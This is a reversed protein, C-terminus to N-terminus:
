DGFSTGVRRAAIVWTHNLPVSNIKGAVEELPVAIADDGQAGVMIGFKGQEVLDACLSGLQAALVRDRAVPAGGRLLYGLITVRTDLHTLHELRNALLLTSGTTRDEIQKLRAAVEAREDGSHLNENVRRTHEFFSVSESTRASEAMAIISFRKGDSNRKLVEDAVKQVDYPIEPILIIDAGGALGAALTLWGSDLGMIEVIIVRHHSHATSHLRDVAETAIETATSYGISRDTGVVHNDIAKPLTILNLGRHALDLAISQTEGGGICILADLQHRQCTAISADLQGARDENSRAFPAKRRSTGLFTGGLTLINSLDSNQIPMTRDEYLGEFGDQFGLLEMGYTHIAAKGFARIAANLGPVDSGATLIGVKKGM